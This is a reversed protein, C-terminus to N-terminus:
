TIRSRGCFREGSLEPFRRSWPTEGIGNTQSRGPWIRGDYCWACFNKPSPWHGLEGASRSVSVCWCGSCASGAAALPPVPNTVTQTRAASLAALRYGTDSSSGRIYTTHLIYPTSLYMRLLVVFVCLDSLRRAIRLGLCTSLRFLPYNRSGVKTGTTSEDGQVNGSRKPGRQTHALPRSWM